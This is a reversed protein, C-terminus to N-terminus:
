DFIQIFYAFLSPAPLCSFFRQTKQEKPTQVATASTGLSLWGRPPEQQPLVCSTSPVLGPSPRPPASSTLLARLQGGGRLFLRATVVLPNEPGAHAFSTRSAPKARLRLGASVRRAGRVARSAPAPVPCSPNPDTSSQESMGVVALCRDQPAASGPSPCRQGSGELVQLSCPVPSLGCNKPSVRSPHFCFGRRVCLENRAPTLGPGAHM